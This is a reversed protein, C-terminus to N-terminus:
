SWLRTESEFWPDPDSVNVKYAFYEFSWTGPLGVQTVYNLSHETGGAPILYGPPLPRSPLLLLNTGKPTYLSGQENSYGGGHLELARGCVYDTTADQLCLLIKSGKSYEAKM